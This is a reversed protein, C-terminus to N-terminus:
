CESKLLATTKSTEIRRRIVLEVVNKVPNKLIIWLSSHNINNVCENSCIKEARQFQELCKYLHKNEKLKVRFDTPVTFHVPWIRKTLQFLTQDESRSQTIRKSDWFWLARDARATFIDAANRCLLLVRWGLTGSIICFWRLSAGIKFSQPVHFVGENDNSGSGSQDPTTAGSLTRNIPWISVNPM